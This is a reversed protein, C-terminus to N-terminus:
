FLRCLIFSISISSVPANLVARLELYQVGDDYFQQLTRYFHARFVPAYLLLDCTALYVAEFRSWIVSAAPYTKEPEDVILTLQKYM